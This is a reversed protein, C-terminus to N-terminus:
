VLVIKGLSFIRTNIFNFIQGSCANKARPDIKEMWTIGAEFVPSGSGQVLSGPVQVMRHHLVFWETEM